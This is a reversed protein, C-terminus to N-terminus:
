KTNEPLGAKLLLSAYRETDAPDKQLRSNMWGSVTFKPNIHMVRSAEAKAEEQRGIAGYAAALIIHPYVAEPQRAAARNSTEISEEYRRAVLQAEALSWMITVMKSPNLRIAKKLIEIGQEFNGAKYLVLGLGYLVLFDNPALSFAKERYALARDYDRRSLALMGLMKYGGPDDPDLEIAKEALELSKRM